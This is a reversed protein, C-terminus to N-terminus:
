GAESGAEGGESDHALLAEAQFLNIGSGVIGCLREMSNEEELQESLFWPLFQLAISDCEATAVRFMERFQATVRQESQLAMQCAGEPSAIDGPRAEPVAPITFPAGVEMLFAAIKMAHAREEDSQRVFFASWGDLQREAFYAAAALYWSSAALEHGIQAHLLARVPESIKV